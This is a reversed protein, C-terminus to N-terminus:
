RRVEKGKPAPEEGERPAAVVFVYDLLGAVASPVIEAEQYLGSPSRFVREVYGIHVGGPFGSGAGGLGSTVVEDGARVPIDKNLFEIRALPMGKRDAGMGRVLGFVETGEIRASVRFAPDCVLLVESSRPSVEVTKGVLGDPSIVARGPEVGDESGKGLRVAHWWGSISRGIVECPIMRFPARRRFDFARRLRLNEAQVDRLRNLEAQARVLEYSLERNRQVTGGLGRLASLAESLRRGLGAGGREVPTLAERVIRKGGLLWRDPLVFAVALLAGAAAYV